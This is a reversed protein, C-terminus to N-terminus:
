PGSRAVNLQDRLARATMILSTASRTLDATVSAPDPPAEVALKVKALAARSEHLLGNYIKVTSHYANIQEVTADHQDAIDEVETVLQVLADQVGQDYAPANRGSAATIPLSEAGLLRAFAAERRREIQDRGQAMASGPRPMAFKEGVKDIAQFPGRMAGKIETLELELRSVHIQYILSTDQILAALIADVNEHGDLIARKFEAGARLREALDLAKSLASVGLGILPNAGAGLLQAFGTVREGLAGVNSAVEEGTRGEALQVLIDNYHAVVALATRRAAVAEPETAAAGAIDLKPDFATPYPKETGSQGAAIQSQRAAFEMASAVDDLLADGQM